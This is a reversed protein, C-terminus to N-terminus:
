ILLNSIEKKTEDDLIPTLNELVRFSQEACMLARSAEDPSPNYGNHKIKDDVNCIKDDLDKLLAGTNPFVKKKICVGIIRGIKIEGISIPIGLKDKLALETATHLSSFLGPYNQNRFSQGAQKIKEKIGLFVQGEEVEEEGVSSIELLDSCHELLDLISRDSPYYTGKIAENYERSLIGKYPPLLIFFSSMVVNLQSLVRESNHYYHYTSSYENYDSKMYKILLKIHNILQITLKTFSTNDMRKYSENVKRLVVNFLNENYM